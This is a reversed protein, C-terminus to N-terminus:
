YPVGGLWCFCRHSLASASRAKLGGLLFCPSGGVGVLFVFGGGWRHTRVYRTWDFPGFDGAPAGRLLPARGEGGLAGHADAAGILRGGPTVALGHARARSPSCTVGLWPSLSESSCTPFCLCIIIPDLLTKHMYFCQTKYHM